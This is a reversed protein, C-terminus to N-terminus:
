AIGAATALRMLREPTLPIARPEVDLAAAVASALAPAPGNLPLEGLGKAGQAGYPYPTELFEVRIPPLDGSTPIIYNTLQTNIMGGDREVCEELLAWGIGQAVGGQVQGRALVENLVTGVEQVALYDLVRVGFTRLDVEVEAVHAAWCFTGYAAGEYTDENWDIGPPAVYRGEGVVAEADHEDHWALIADRVISGRADDTLGIRRRLDDCGLEVLHGVIMATRSAVTPGSNPVAHTDPASIEIHDPSVGLREAALQTFVTITGQGM